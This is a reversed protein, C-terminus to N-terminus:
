IWFSLHLTDKFHLKAQSQADADPHVETQAVSSYEVRRDRVPSGGRWKVRRRHEPKHGSPLRSQREESGATVAGTPPPTREWSRDRGSFRCSSASNMRRRRDFSGTANPDNSLFSAAFAM